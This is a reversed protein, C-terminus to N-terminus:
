ESATKTRTNLAGHEKLLKGIGRLGKRRAMEFPTDGRQNAQNIIRRALRHDILQEVISIDGYSVAWYLPTSNDDGGSTNPNAGHDLLLQVIEPRNFRTAELLPSVKNTNYTNVEAGHALLWEIIQRNKPGFEEAQIARLLPTNGEDDDVNVGVGLQALQMFIALDGEAAANLLLQAAQNKAARNKALYTKLWTMAGATHLSLAVLIPDKDFRQAINFVFFKNFEVSNYYAKSASLLTRIQKIKKPYAGETSKIIHQAKKSVLFGYVIFKADNPILNFTFSETEKTHGADILLSSAILFLLVIKKDM